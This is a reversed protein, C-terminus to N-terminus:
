STRGTQKSGSPETWLKMCIGIIMVSAIIATRNKSSMGVPKKALPNFVELTGNVNSYIRTTSMVEEFEASAWGVTPERLTANGQATGGLKKILGNSLEFPQYGASFISGWTMSLLETITISKAERDCSDTVNEHQTSGGITLLQRSAALHFTHGYRPSEGEFMKIWTFSPLSLVYLHDYYKTSNGTATPDWGGYMFINRSSNDPASALVARSDISAPPIDGSIAQTYWTGYTKMSIYSGLDFSLLRGQSQSTVPQLGDFAKGGLAILLGSDCCNHVMEVGWSPLTYREQHCSDPDTSLMWLPLSVRVSIIGDRTPTHSSM